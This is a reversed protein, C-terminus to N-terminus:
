SARGTTVPLIIGQAIGETVIVIALALGPLIIVPDHTFIYYTIASSDFATHHALGPTNYIIKFIHQRSDPSYLLIGVPFIATYLAVYDLHDMLIIRVVIHAMHEPPNFLM